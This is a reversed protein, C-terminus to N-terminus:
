LTRLYCEISKAIIDLREFSIVSISDGQSHLYPPINKCVLCIFPIDKYKFPECDTVFKVPNYDGACMNLKEIMGEFGKTLYPCGSSYFFALEVDPNGVTDVNIYFKIEKKSESLYRNSGYHGVEEGDFLCIDIGYQPHINNKQIAKIVKLLVAVGSLNDDAGPRPISDIYGYADYHAGLVIMSDKAGEIHFIINKM